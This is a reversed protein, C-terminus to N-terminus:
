IFNQIMYLCLFRDDEEDALGEELEDEDYEVEEDTQEDENEESNSDAYEEKENKYHREAISPM